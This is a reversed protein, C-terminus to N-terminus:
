LIEFHGLKDNQIKQRKWKQKWFQPSLKYCSKMADVSM